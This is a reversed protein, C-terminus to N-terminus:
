ILYLARAAARAVIRGAGSQETRKLVISIIVKSNLVAYNLAYKLLAFNSTRVKLNRSLIGENMFM